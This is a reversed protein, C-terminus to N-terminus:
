TISVGTRTNSVGSHTNVVPTYAKAIDSASEDRDHEPTQRYDVTLM